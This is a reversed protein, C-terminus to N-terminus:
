ITQWSQESGQVASGVYAKYTYSQSFNEAKVGGYDEIVQVDVEYVSSATTAPSGGSATFTFPQPAQTRGAFTAVDGTSPGPEPPLSGPQPASSGFCSGPDCQTYSLGSVPPWDFSWITNDPYAVLCRLDPAVLGTGAGPYSYWCLGQPGGTSSSFAAVAATQPESRACDTLPQSYVAPAGSLQQGQSTLVCGYIPSADSIAGMASSLATSAHRAAGYESGALAASRESVMAVSAIAFLLVSALATVVVMEVLSVAGREGRARPGSTPAPACLHRLGSRNRNTVALVALVVLVGVILVATGALRASGALAVFFRDVM